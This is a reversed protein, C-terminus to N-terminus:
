QGYNTELLLVNMKYQGFQGDCYNNRILHMSILLGKTLSALKLFQSMKYQITLSSHLNVGDFMHLRYYTSSNSYM